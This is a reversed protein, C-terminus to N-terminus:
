LPSTGLEPNNGVKCGYASSGGTIWFLVLTKLLHISGVFIKITVMNVINLAKQLQGNQAKSGGLTM